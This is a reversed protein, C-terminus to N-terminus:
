IGGDVARAVVDIMDDATTAAWAVSPRPTQATLRRIVERSLELDDGVAADLVAIVAPAEIAGATMAQLVALMESLVQDARKRM